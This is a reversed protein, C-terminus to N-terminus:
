GAADVAWDSWDEAPGWEAIGGLSREGDDLPSVAWRTRTVRLHWDTSIVGFRKVCCSRVISALRRAGM